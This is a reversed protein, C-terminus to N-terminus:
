RKRSIPATWNLSLATMLKPSSNILKIGHKVLLVAVAKANTKKVLATAMIDVARMGDDDALLLNTGAPIHDALDNVVLFDVLCLGSAIPLLGSQPASKLANVITRDNHYLKDVLSKGSLINKLEGLQQSFLKLQAIGQIPLGATAFQQSIADYDGGLCASISFAADLRKAQLAADLMQLRVALRAGIPEALLCEIVSPRCHVAAAVVAREAFVVGVQKAIFLLRPTTAFASLLVDGNVASSPGVTGPKVTKEIEAVVSKRLVVIYQLVAIADSNIAGVAPLELLSLLQESTM